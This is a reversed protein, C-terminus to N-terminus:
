DDDAFTKRRNQKKKAKKFPAKKGGGTSKKFKIDTRGNALSKASDTADVKSDTQLTVGKYGAKGSTSWVDYAGLASDDANSHKAEEMRRTQEDREKSKEKELQERRKARAREREEKVERSITVKRISVTGWSSLGTNEDIETQAHDDIKIIEEGGMLSLRAEEITSPILDDSGLVLRLRDGEVKKEITEDDDNIDNLYSIDCLPNLDIPQANSTSQKHVRLIIGTKWNDMAEDSKRYDLTMTTSGTWIQVPMDQEFISAYIGGELYTNQGKQYHGEDPRLNFKMRKPMQEKDDKEIEDDTKFKKRKEKRDKWLKMEGEGLMSNNKQVVACTDGSTTAPMGNLGFRQQSSLFAGSAVDSSHALAAAQEIAKLSNEMAKADKEEKLKEERRKVLSAEM